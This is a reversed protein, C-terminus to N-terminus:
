RRALISSILVAPNAGRKFIKPFDFAGSKQQSKGKLFDFLDFLDFACGAFHPWYFIEGFSSM